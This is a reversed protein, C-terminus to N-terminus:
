VRSRGALWQQGIKLVDGLGFKGDGDQDLISGLLGGGQGLGLKQAEQSLAGGLGGPSLGQGQSMGGLVSLIIPALIALLQGAGQTGLGTAQGLGQTAQDQRNGFIHGLIAGGAGGGGLANSLVSGIDSGAHESAASHVAGPDSAASQALGGVLMPLAQHIASEAQAPSVGLQAAIAEIRQPDLHQLVQDSLSSM